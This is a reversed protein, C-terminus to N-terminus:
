ADTKGAEYKEAAQLIKDMERCVDDPLPVPEIKEFLEEVREKARVLIDKSGRQAWVRYPLRDSIKTLYQEKDWWAKTFKRNLFHGPLPGVEHILDVALTEDTVLIGRMLHKVMGVMEDDIVLQEYSMLEENEMHGMGAVVNIGALTLLVLQMGKEYGTQQDPVKSDTQPAFTWSPLNYYRAIQATAMDILSTEVGASAIAAVRMDMPLLYTGYIVRCGPSALQALVIGSLVEVNQQVLSGAFTAPSTAGPCAGCYVGIPFGAEAFQICLNCVNQSWSLPSGPGMWGLIERGAAQALEVQWRPDVLGMASGGTFARKNYKLTEALLREWNLLMPKDALFGLPPFLLDVHELLDLFGIMEPVDATVSHRREGTKRDVIEIGIGTSYLITNTSIRVDYEPSRGKFTWSGPCRRLAEEVVYGPFKVLMTEHDVHCGANELLKLAKENEFKVGTRELVEFSAGHIRDLDNDSLVTFLNDYAYGRIPM